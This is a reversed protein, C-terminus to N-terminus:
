RPLAPTEDLEPDSSLVAQYCHHLKHSPELGFRGVMDTRLRHFAELARARYGCRYLAIILQAHLDENFRDHSVLDTLEGLVERHRGLRLELDIRHDLMTARSQDLGATEARISPGPEVDALAPGRWLSLATCFEQTATALDGEAMAATGARELQRFIRLDFHTLEAVFQYGNRATRLIESGVADMSRGTLEAFKKRLEFVYTQVAARATKPAPGDWLEDMLTAIPVVRSHNLLLLALLQRPKRAIPALEIDACALRLPGLLQVQIDIRREPRAHRRDVPVHPSNREVEAGGRM